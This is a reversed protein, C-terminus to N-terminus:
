LRKYFHLGVIKNTVTLVDNAGQFRHRLAKWNPRHRVQMHDFSTELFRRCDISIQMFACCSQVYLSVALQMPFPGRKTQGQCRSRLAKWIPDHRCSSVAGACLQLFLTQFTEAKWHTVTGQCRGRLNTSVDHRCSSSAGARPRVPSWMSVTFQQFAPVNRKWTKDNYSLLLLPTSM